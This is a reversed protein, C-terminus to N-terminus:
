LGEISQVYFGTDYPKVQIYFGTDFPPGTVYFSGTPSSFTIWSACGAQIEQPLLDMDEPNVDLEEVNQTEKLSELNGDLPILWDQQEPVNYVPVFWTGAYFGGQYRAM